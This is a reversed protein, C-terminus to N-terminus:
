ASIIYRTIKEIMEPPLQGSLEMRSTANRLITSVYIKKAENVCDGRVLDDNAGHSVLINIMEDKGMTNCYCVNWWNTKRGWCVTSNPNAGFYLLYRLIKLKAQLKEADKSWKIHVRMACTLPSVDEERKFLRDHGNFLRNADAGYKLLAYVMHPKLKEIAMKLPCEKGWVLNADAGSQVAKAILPACADEFYQTLYILFPKNKTAIQPENLNCEKADIIDLLTGIKEHDQHDRSRLCAVTKVAGKVADSFQMEMSQLSMCVSFSVGM